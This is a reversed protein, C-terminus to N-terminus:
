TAVGPQSQARRVGPPITRRKSEVWSVVDGWAVRPWGGILFEPIEGQDCAARIQRISVGTLRAAEPKTLLHIPRPGSDM